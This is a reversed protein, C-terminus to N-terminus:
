QLPCDASTDPHCHLSSMLRCLLPWPRAPAASVIVGDKVVLLCYREAALKQVHAAAAALLKPDLGFDEPAGVAWAGRGPGLGADANAGLTINLPPPLQSAAAVVVVAALLLVRVGTPM